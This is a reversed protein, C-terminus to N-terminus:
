PRIGEVLGLEELRIAMAEISVRFRDALPVISVGNFRGAASLTRTLHRLSRPNWNMDPVSGALAFRTDDSWVFPSHSFIHQFVRTVSKEPMLFLTAFQDAEKELPNRSGTSGDLPLDRHMGHLEHMVAHGYEHAATFNQVVLPFNGSIFVQRNCKDISGAIKPDFQQVANLPTVVDVVEVEYGLLRLGVKPDLLEIPDISEFNNFTRRNSWIRRHEVQVLNLIEKINKKKHARRTIQVAQRSSGQQHNIPQSLEDLEAAFAHPNQLKRHESKMAIIEEIDEIHAYPCQHKFRSAHIAQERSTSM